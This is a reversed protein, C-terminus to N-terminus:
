LGNRLALDSMLDPDDTWLLYHDIIEHKTNYVEQLNYTIVKGWKFEVLLKADSANVVEIRNSKWLVLGLEMGLKSLAWSLWNPDNDMRPTYYTIKLIPNITM